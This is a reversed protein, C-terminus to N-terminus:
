VMEVKQWPAGRHSILSTAKKSIPSGGHWSQTKFLPRFHPKQFRSCCLCQPTFCPSLPLTSALLRPSTPPFDIVLVISTSGNLTRVLVDLQVQLSVCCCAISPLYRLDSRLSNFNYSILTFCIIGTWFKESLGLAEQHRLSRWVPRKDVPVRPLM